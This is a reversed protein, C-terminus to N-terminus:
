VHRGDPSFTAGGVGPGLKVGGGSEPCYLMVDGSTEGLRESRKLAAICRGDPSWAPSLHAGAMFKRAHQGNAEAIWLGPPGERDSVFALSKGDPSFRPQADFAPGETIRTATGGKIPLTYLDGLLDFVITRGDPSVDVSMWTGEDTTFTLSRSYQVPFGTPESAPQPITGADVAAARAAPAQAETSGAMVCTLATLVATTLVAGRGIPGSSRM